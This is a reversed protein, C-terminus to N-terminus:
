LAGTREYTYKYRYIDVFFQLYKKKLYELENNNIALVKLNNEINKKNNM